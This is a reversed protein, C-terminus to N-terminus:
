LVFSVVCWGLFSVWAVTMFLGAAVIAGPLILGHRISDKTADDNSRVAERM